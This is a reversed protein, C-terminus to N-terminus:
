SGGAAPHGNGAALITLDDRRRDPTLPENTLVITAGAQLVGYLQQGFAPDIRVRQVFQHVLSSDMSGSGVVDWVHFPQGPAFPHPLDSLQETRMYTVPVLPEAGRIDVPARGIEVGNRLVHVERSASSIV